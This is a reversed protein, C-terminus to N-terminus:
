ILLVQHLLHSRVPPRLLPPSFLEAGRSDMALATPASAVLSLSDVAPTILVDTSHGAETRAFVCTEGECKHHPVKGHQSKQEQHPAAHHHHHKCCSHSKAGAPNRVVAHDHHWCCGLLGHILVSVITVISFLANM